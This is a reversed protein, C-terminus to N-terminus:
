IVLQRTRIIKKEKFKTSYMQKGWLLKLDTKEETTNGRIKAEVKM